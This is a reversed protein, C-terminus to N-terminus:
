SGPIIHCSGSKLSIRPEKGKELKMKSMVHRPVDVVLDVAENVQMDLRFMASGMPHVDLIKGTFINPHKSTIPRDERLLM